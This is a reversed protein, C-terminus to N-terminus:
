KPGYNGSTPRALVCWRYALHRSFGNKVPKAITKVTLQILKNYDRFPGPPKKIVTRAVVCQNRGSAIKTQRWRVVERGIRLDARLLAVERQLYAVEVAVGVARVQEGGM